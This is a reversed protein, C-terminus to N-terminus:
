MNILFALSASPSVSDCASHKTLTKFNVPKVLSAVSKPSIKFLGCLIIFSRFSLTSNALKMQEGRPNSIATDIKPNKTIRKQQQMIFHQAQRVFCGLGSITQGCKCEFLTFLGYTRISMAQSNNDKHTGHFNRRM